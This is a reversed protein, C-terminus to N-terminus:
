LCASGPSSGLKPTRGFSLGNVTSSSFRPILKSIYTSKPPFKSQVVNTMSLFFDALHEFKQSYFFCVCSFFPIEKANGSDGSHHFCSIPSFEREACGLSYPMGHNHFNTSVLNSTVNLLRRSKMSGYEVTRSPYNAESSEIESRIGFRVSRMSVSKPLDISDSSRITSRM